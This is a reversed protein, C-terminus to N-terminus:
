ESFEADDATDGTITNMAVLTEYTVRGARGGTGVTRKVWGSHTVTAPTGSGLTASATATAGTLTHSTGVGVETLDIADGGLTASLKITTASPKSHIYYVTATTLGVIATGGTGAAYTVADDVALAAVQASTLVITDSALVAVAADSADFTSATAGHITVTPTSTYGAGDETITISTVKGATVVSTGTATTGSGPASVTVAADDADVYGTGGSNVALSVVNDGGATMETEDVGFIADSDTISLNRPTERKLVTLNTATSGAYVETLTLSSASEISKVRYPVDVIMMLDGVDIQGATTFATSSSGEAVTASNEEVNVNGTIAASDANGWLSM